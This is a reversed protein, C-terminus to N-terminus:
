LAVRYLAIEPLPGTLAVAGVYGDDLALDSLSLDGPATTDFAEPAWGLGGGDAKAMAEKRCWIRLLEVHRDDGDLSAREAPTLSREVATSRRSTREVDIGVELDSTLAILALDGSHALNFRVPSGAIEPKGHPGVALEIDEPHTALRGALVIRLAARSVIWRDPSALRAAREREDDSLMRTLRGVLEPPQALTAQWVEVTHVGEVTATISGASDNGLITSL